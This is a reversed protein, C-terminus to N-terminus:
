RPCKAFYATALLVPIAPQLGFELLQEISTGNLAFQTSTNTAEPSFYFDTQGSDDETSKLFIVGALVLGNRVVSCWM